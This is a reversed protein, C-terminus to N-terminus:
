KGTITIKVTTAASGATILMSGELAAAQATTGAIMGISGAVLSFDLAGSGLAVTATGATCEVLIGHIETLTGIAGGEFDEGAGGTKAMTGTLTAVGTTTVLTATDTAAGTLTVAYAKTATAQQNGNVGNGITVSGSANPTSATATAFLGYNYYASTLTM